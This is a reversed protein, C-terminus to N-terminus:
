AIEEAFAIAMKKCDDTTKAETPWGKKKLTQYGVKGPRSKAGIKFGYIARHSWGYWADEKESYGISKANHTSDIKEPVIGHKDFFKQLSSQETGSEVVIDNMITMAGMERLAVLVCLRIPNTNM